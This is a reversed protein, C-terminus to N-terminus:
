ATTEHESSRYAMMVYPIYEDWDRQHESVFVGIMSALTRNFREVMGDSQPHYTSTRTKDIELLECMERFLRREFQRGQDSHIKTPTGFRSIVQEVLIKAVTRAEMNPMPFCETWKTFYDAIVVIYRNGNETLPLEGLIDIALREMPYGSQHLQMPAKKNPIPGKRKMCKECGTVYIKIDKRQGPWYYRQRIRQLTKKIGLHGGSRNDHSVRLVERRQSLPLIVQTTTDYLQRVLLGDQVDLLDFQNWLTKVFYGESSIENVPPRRGQRVWQKVLSVADASQHEVELKNVLKPEFGTRDTTNNTAKELGDERGCQKCPIRSLSDANGHLRGKRHEVTFTFSSLTELWRAVQGEPNKFRMLWKLSGHDTRVLFPKRYLYHRFYKVYNVVALLEKRTVCYKRETKSLTRSAYAIAREQGDERQSLVAAIAVDSADTDLIFPKSFDPYMLVPATM